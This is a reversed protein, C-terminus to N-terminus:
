WFSHNTGTKTRSIGDTKRKRFSLLKKENKGLNRRFLYFYYNMLAHYLKPLSVDM